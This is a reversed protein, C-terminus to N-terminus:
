SWRRAAPSRWAAAWRWRKLRNRPQKYWQRWVRCSYASSRAKGGARSRAEQCSRKRPHRPMGRLYALAGIRACAGALGLNGLTARASTGIHVIDTPDLQRQFLFGLASLAVIVRLEHGSFYVTTAAGTTGTTTCRLAVRASRRVFAEPDARLAAKPTPPVHRIDAYGLRAPDLGLRAFLRAYYPTERAARRAQARFRRLQLDRRTAEDLVPGGLVEAGADAGLPGFERRTERVAEVLRDLAWTSFPIGLAISAAFRLQAIATTLM